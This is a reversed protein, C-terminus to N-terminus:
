SGSRRETATLAAVHRAFNVAFAILGIGVLRLILKRDRDGKRVQPYLGFSDHILNGIRAPALLMFVGTATWAFFMARYVAAIGLCRSM